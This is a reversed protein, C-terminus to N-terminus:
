TTISRKTEQLITHERPAEAGRREGTRVAGVTRELVILARLAMLPALPKLCWDLARAAPLAANPLLAYPRFGGTVLWSVSPLLKVSRVRLLEPDEVLGPLRSPTKFYLEPIAANGDFAVKDDWFPALPNVRRDADEHHVHRYFWYGLPSTWPELMVIRGGLSLARAARDLFAAPRAIHHFVDIMVFNGISGPCFPLRTADAVLDVWPTREVDTAIAEPFHAHFLGPGSGLEVVPRGPGCADIMARFYSEYVRRLAPKDSWVARHRLLTALCSETTGHRGTATLFM